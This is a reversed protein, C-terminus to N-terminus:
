TILIDETIKDALLMGKETLYIVQNKEYILGNLKFNEFINERTSKLSIGFQTKIFKLDCGWMTRISTLLYDNALDTQSLTEVSCPIESRELAQIYKSNSAFNHQRSRLNFSHASPGIGLYPQFKWYNSNHKAYQDPQCFNSVEYHQYHTSDLHKCMMEYQSIIFSEDPLKLLNKRIRQGFVTQNEVTLCYASIHPINFDSVENLDRKWRRLNDEPLGYMLDITINHFGAKQANKIAQRAQKAKHSRNLSSLIRDNFTQIGFSLRNVGANKLGNLCKPTIDEPNAELTIEAESSLPYDKAVVDLIQNLQQESLLSPTGGGFYITEITEDSLYYKQLKLETCIAMVM